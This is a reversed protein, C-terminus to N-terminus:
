SVMGLGASLGISHSCIWCFSIGDMLGGKEMFEKFTARQLASDPRANLFIVVQYNNLVGPNLDNWNKTSDYKFNNKDAMKSFWRNAEQVFSVHATESENIEKYFAIVKFKPLTNKNGCYILGSFFVISFINIYILKKM